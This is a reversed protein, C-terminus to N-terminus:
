RGPRGPDDTRQRKAGLRAPNPAAAASSRRDEDPERQGRPRKISEARAIRDPGGERPMLKCVTFGNGACKTGTYKVPVRSATNPHTANASDAPREETAKGASAHIQVGSRTGCRAAHQLPAWGIRCAQRYGRRMRRMAPRSGSFSPSASPRVHELLASIRSPVM